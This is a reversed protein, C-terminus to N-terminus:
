RRRGARARVVYLVLRRFDILRQWREEREGEAERHDKVGDYVRGMARGVAREAYSRDKKAIIKRAGVESAYSLLHECAAWLSAPGM